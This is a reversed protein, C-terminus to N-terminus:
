LIALDSGVRRLHNQFERTGYLADRVNVLEIKHEKIWARLRPDCLAAVDQTRGVIFQQSRPRRAREGLRYVYYDVYGPHWAQQVIADEPYSLLHARDETYYLVPDYTAEVEAISDTLLDIYAYTGDAIMIKRHAWRPDARTEGRPNEPYLLAWEEGAERAETIKKQVRPDTGEKSGYNYVIGYEDSVQRCALGWPSNSKGGGGVDPAKGLIDICRNIQTRLEAVAEKFDVDEAQALDERFRGAFPGEQEILSPVQASPLVPAGWMHMHWGISLWPYAKLRVLADETGPSDLMVDASTVLEHDIAEFTGINCVPTFGIDDARIIMKM